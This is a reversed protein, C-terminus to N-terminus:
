TIQMKLFEYTPVDCEEVLRAYHSYGAFSLIIIDTYFSLRETLLVRSTYIINFDHTRANFYRLYM